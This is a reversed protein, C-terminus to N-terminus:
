TVDDRLKGPIEFIGAYSIYIGTSSLRSLLCVVILFEVHFMLPWMFSWTGFVDLM